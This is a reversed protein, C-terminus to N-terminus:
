DAKLNTSAFQSLVPPVPFAALYATKLALGGDQPVPVWTTRILTDLTLWMSLILNAMAVYGGVSEPLGGSTIEVANGTARVQAGHLKGFAAGTAIIDTIPNSIPFFGPIAIADSLDHHRLDKPAIQTKGDSTMFFEDISKECILLIVPDGVSLELSLFYNKSRPFWVPVSPILPLGEDSTSGDEFVITRKLLPQVDAVQTAANYKKIIGPTAVHVEEIMKNIVASLLEPLEPSKSQNFPQVSM